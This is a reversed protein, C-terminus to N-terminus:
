VAEVIEASAPVAIGLLAAVFLVRWDSRSTLYGEAIEAHAEAALISCAATVGSWGM